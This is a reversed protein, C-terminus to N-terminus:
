QSAGASLDQVVWSALVDGSNAQSAASLSHTVVEDVTLSTSAPQAQSQQTLGALCLILIGAAIASLVEGLKMIGSAQVKNASRYLRELSEAPMEQRALVGFLSSLKELRGLEASCLECVLIHQRFQGAVDAPLEGDHYLSIKYAQPCQNSQEYDNM